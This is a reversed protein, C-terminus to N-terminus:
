GRGRIDHKMVVREVEDLSMEDDADQRRKVSHAPRRLSLRFVFVRPPSPM